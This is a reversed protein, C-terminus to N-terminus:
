GHKKGPGGLLVDNGYLIDYVGTTVSFNLLEPTTFFTKQKTKQATDNM